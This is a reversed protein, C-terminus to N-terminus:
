MVKQLVQVLSCAAQVNAEVDPDTKMKAMEQLRHEIEKISKGSHIVQELLDELTVSRLMSWDQGNGWPHFVISFLLIKARLPNSFQIIELRLDFPDYNKLSAVPKVPAPEAYHLETVLQPEALDIISTTVSSKHNKSGNQYSNELHVIQTKILKLETGGINDDEEQAEYDLAIEYLCEFQSIIFDAVGVYINKKNINDVIKYFTKKVSGLTSHNQNIESIMRKMGYNDIACIENQWENKCAAYLLKKARAADPHNEINSAIQAILSQSDAMEMEQSKRPQPEGAVSILQTDYASSFSYLKSVQEIVITAVNAYIKPRNLTKVLKYISFTLQENTTKIQILENILDKLPLSNLITADNEWYKRCTCFILKKIRLSEEHTELSQVVENFIDSSLEM